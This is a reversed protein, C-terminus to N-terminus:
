TSDRENRVEIKRRLRKLLDYLRIIARDWSDERVAVEIGQM